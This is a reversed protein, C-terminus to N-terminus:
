KKTSPLGSALNYNPYANPPSNGDNEYWFVSNVNNGSSAVQGAAVVDIDGDNDMDGIEVSKPSGNGINSISWGSIRGAEMTNEYWAIKDDDYSASLVDIDGDSDMDVAFVSRSEAANSSITNANWSNGNEYWAIKDPNTSASLVDMDGDGDVDATYVSRVNTVSSSITHTTFSESSNNEYWAIKHDGQIASLVDMDGDGDVDM